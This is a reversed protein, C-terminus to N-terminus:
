ARKLPRSGKVVSVMYRLFRSRAEEAISVTQINEAMASAEESLSFMRECCLLLRDASM